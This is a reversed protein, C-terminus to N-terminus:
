RDGKMLIPWTCTRGRKNDIMFLQQKPVEFDAKISVAFANYGILSGNCIFNGGDRAQHFHGFVDLGVNLGKNWQGIAKNVPIYIGGVGGQYRIQHGHHLRVDNGYVNVYSHYGEAIRFEVREENRFHAALMLYLLYELSHDNENGERTKVTTRGHNGSHCPVLIHCDTHNLLFEIGGIIWEQALRIAATPGLQMNEAHEGHHLDANSIFDGLLPLVITPIRVDQKLLEILRLGSSFFNKVRKEAIELDYRNLHSVTEPKVREEIHWDSAVMFVTAETTGNREKTEIVLPEGPEGIDLVQSLREELSDIQKLAAQYKLHTTKAEAIQKARERDAALQASASPPCPAGAERCKRCLGRRLAKDVSGCIAFNACRDNTSSM